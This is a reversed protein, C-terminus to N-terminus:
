LFLPMIKGSKRKSIPNGRSLPYANSGIPFDKEYGLVHEEASLADGFPPPNRSM